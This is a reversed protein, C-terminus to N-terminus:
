NWGWLEERADEDKKGRPTQLLILKLLSQAHGRSILRRNKIDDTVKQASTITIAGVRDEEQYERLEGGYARKQLM